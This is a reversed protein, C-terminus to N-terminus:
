PMLKEKIAKCRANNKFINAPYADPFLEQKAVIIKEIIDKYIQEINIEAIIGNNIYRTSFDVNRQLLMQYVIHLIFRNGHISILKRTRDTNQQFNKEIREVERYILVSNWLKYANTASNFIQKYPAKSLNDFISGYARKITSSISVDGYFCGLSVTADDITCRQQNNSKEAGPKYVYEIDDMFLDRRLREQEPDQTAFDKNEIRNQTNSLKTVKDEMGANTSDLEIIQVHVKVNELNKKCKQYAEFISGTTQAGNVISAGELRLLAIAKDNSYANSRRIRDAIIKIGNNYLYFNEAETELVTLIGKNVDTDGKFFRINKEFLRVGFREFWSALMLAPITGYFARTQGAIDVTGWNNLYVDEIDIKNLSGASSMATYVDSKSIIRFKVMEEGDDNKGRLYRNLADQCETPLQQNSSLALILEITYDFRKVASSIEEKRSQVKSNFTDFELSLIKEVGDDIFKLFDGLSITSNGDNSWKSQILILRKNIEDNYVADIGNDHYGDTVCRAAIDPDVGTMMSIAFASYSRSLLCSQYDDSGLTATVDTMDILESYQELLKERIRILNIDSM